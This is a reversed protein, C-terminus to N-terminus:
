IEVNRARARDNILAIDSEVVNADIVGIEVMNLHVDTRRDLRGVM